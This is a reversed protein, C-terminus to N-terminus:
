NDKALRKRAAKLDEETDIGPPAPAQAAACIITEGYWLARLQELRESQELLCPALRTFYQLGECRYAYLGIHRRATVPSHWPLPARSFYLARGAQDCVVKVCDPSAYEKVTIPSHLTAMLAEPHKSLLQAAQGPLAPPLEPEDGQLNVVLAESPLKLSRAAAAIRDSGSPQDGTMVANCGIASVAEAIRKDDTAVNVSAAGSLLARECVHQIIPRGGLDALPKGPLRTAAYRAPILIHFPELPM